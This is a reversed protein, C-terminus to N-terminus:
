DSLRDGISTQVIWINRNIENADYDRRNVFDLKAAYCLSSNHNMRKTFYHCSEASYNPIAGLNCIRFAYSDGISLNKGLSWM